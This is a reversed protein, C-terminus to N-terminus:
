SGTPIDGTEHNGVAHSGVEIISFNDFQSSVLSGNPGVRRKLSLQKHIEGVNEESLNAFDHTEV